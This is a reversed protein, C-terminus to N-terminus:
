LLGRFFRLPYLFTTRKLSVMAGNEALYFGNESWLSGDEGDVAKEVLKLFIQGIDTIHVNSWVSLGRGVHIGEHNQLTVRVLEPVQVSRQNIPGRGQGYIVPPFVITTKPARPTGALSLIFNDSVRKASYLRILDRIEQVGNVDSYIKDPPEGFSGKEIDPASLVTAGSVQIWHGVLFTNRDSCFFWIRRYDSCPM